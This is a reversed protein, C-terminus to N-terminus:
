STEWSNCHDLWRRAPSNAFTSPTERPMVIHIHLSRSKDATSAEDGIDNSRPEHTIWVAREFGLRAALASLDRVSM